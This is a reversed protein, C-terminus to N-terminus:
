HQCAGRSPRWCGCRAQERGEEGWCGREGVRRYWRRREWHVGQRSTHNKQGSPWMGRAPRDRRSHGQRMRAKHGWHHYGQRKEAQSASYDHWELGTDRGGTFRAGQSSCGLLQLLWLPLSIYDYNVYYLKHNHSGQLFLKINKSETKLKWEENLPVTPSCM